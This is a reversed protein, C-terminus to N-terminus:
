AKSPKVGAHPKQKLITHRIMGANINKTEDLIVPFGKFTKGIEM